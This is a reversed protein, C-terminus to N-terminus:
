AADLSSRDSEAYRDSWLRMTHDLDFEHPTTPYFNDASVDAGEAQVISLDHRERLDIREGPADVTWGNERLRRPTLDQVVPRCPDLPSWDIVAASRGDSLGVITGPAYPPIVSLLALTIIPDIRPALPGARLANLVRVTPTPADDILRQDDIGFRLRDFLDVAGVIRAFPHIRDARLPARGYISDVAPFGSGDHRQHHNLIISAATPEMEDKVMDYGHQVHSQFEPDAENESMIWRQRAERSLRLMGVDHLMAGVGLNAIDRARSATLRSRHTVLWPELRLGLLLSIFCVASAHRVPALGFGAMEDLYVVTHQCSGLRELLGAVAGRYSHYNLKVHTSSAAAHFTSDIHRVIQAHAAAVLPTSVQQIDELGPYRIWLERVGSVTLRALIAEDLVVGANLLSIGPRIPHPIPAAVTMGPVLNTVSVRLM